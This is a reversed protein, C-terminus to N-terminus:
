RAPQWSGSRVAQVVERISDIVLRPQEKHIEHGTNTDAFQEANPVFQDASEIDSSASEAQGSFSSFAVVVATAICLCAFKM